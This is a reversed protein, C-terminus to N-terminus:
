FNKIIYKNMQLRIEWEKRANERSTGMSEAFRLAASNYSYSALWREWATEAKIV